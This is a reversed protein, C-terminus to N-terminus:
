KSYGAILDIWAAGGTEGDLGTQVKFWEGVDALLTIQDAKRQSTL